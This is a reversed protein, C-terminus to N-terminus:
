LNQSSDLDKLKKLKLEIDEKEKILRLEEKGLKEKKYRLALAIVEELELFSLYKLGKSVLEFGQEKVAKRAAKEEETMRKRAM